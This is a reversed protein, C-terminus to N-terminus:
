LEGMEGDVVKGGQEDIIRLQYGPVATGSTGYHVDDVRNSLFIHLLETSGLGDLIKTAFRDEWARAVSEPLAEGASVCLRLRPFGQDRADGPDALIAGYLTPVGYFITPEHTALIRMVAAPTPREAIVAATAGVYFPFTMSNGLGYAFFFKAASFVVDDAHIGLVGCGYLAATVVLDGHLHVSGKPTGTSGSTYLWFAVDDSQTAAVPLTASAADLLAGLSQHDAGTEGDAVIVQELHPQDALIPAFKELLAASVVLIRARSDRLMYDYDSSTLLTNVPIATAGTKIAGWFVPPFDVSDLLCLMVRTEMGAGLSRLVNGARNVREHLDTYTYAGADDILATRGGRGDDLNADIFEAAANYDRPVEIRPPSQSLDVAARM